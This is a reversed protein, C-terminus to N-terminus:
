ETKKKKKKVTLVNVASSEGPLPRKTGASPELPANSVQISRYVYKRYFDLLSPESSIAEAPLPSATTTEAQNKLGECLSRIAAEISATSQISREDNSFEHSNLLNNVTREIINKSVEGDASRISIPPTNSPSPASTFSVVFFGTVAGASCEQRFSMMEWFEDATIPVKVDSEKPEKKEKVEKFKGNVSIPKKREPSPPPQLARQPAFLEDLFRSKPDDPFFPILEAINQSQSIGSPMTRNRQSYPHGYTWQVQDTVDLKVVQLAELENMGPLVYFAHTEGFEPVSPKSHNIVEGLLRKWWRCLQADTLVHKRPHEISNAFLYQNQARAFLHIWFHQTSRNASDAYFLLLAKVLPQTPSPAVGQGTSDVKSIYLITTSTSSITFLCAEIVSVFIPQSDAVQESVLVLIDQIFCKRQPSAYPYLDYHKRPVSVLNHLHFKRTGPLSGLAAILHDRLAM